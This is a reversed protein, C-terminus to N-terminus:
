NVVQFGSQDVKLVKEDKGSFKGPAFDVAGSFGTYSVTKLLDAIPVNPKSKQLLCAKEAVKVADFGLAVFALNIPQVDSGFSDRYKKILEPNELTLQTVYINDTRGKLAQIENYGFGDGTLIPGKYGAERLQQILTVVQMGNLPAYIVDPSVKLARVIVSRFDTDQPTVRDHNKIQTDARAFNKEFASSIAESWDDHMSIIAASHAGLKSHAFTSMNAGAKETSYGISFLNPGFDKMSEYYDWVVVAPIKSRTLFPIVARGINLAGVFVLTVGKTDIMRKVASIAHTYNYSEDDEYNVTLPCSLSEKEALQMGRQIENGFSALDGTLPLLAGVAFQQQDAYVCNTLLSVFSLSLLTVIIKM